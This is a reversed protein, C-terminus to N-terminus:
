VRRSQGINFRALVQSYIDRATLGLMYGAQCCILPLVLAVASELPSQGSAWASAIFAGAGLITFPLLALINFYLGIYIGAGCALILSM